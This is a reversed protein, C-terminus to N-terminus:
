RPLVAGSLRGRGSEQLVTPRVQPLASSDILQGSRRAGVIWSCGAVTQLANAALKLPGAMHQCPAIRESWYVRSWGRAASCEAEATVSPPM